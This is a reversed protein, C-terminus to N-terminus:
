VDDESYDEDWWAPEENTVFISTNKNAAPGHQAPIHNDDRSPNAVAVMPTEIIGFVSEFAERIIRDCDLNRLNADGQNEDVSKYCALIKDRLAHYARDNAECLKSYKNPVGAYEVEKAVMKTVFNRLVDIMIGGHIGIPASPLEKNKRIHKRIIKVLTSKIEGKPIKAVLALAARDRIVLNCGLHEDEKASSFERPIKRIKGRSESSLIENVTHNITRSPLSRMWGIVDAAEAGLEIHLIKNQKM